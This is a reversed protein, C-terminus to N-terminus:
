VPKIFQRVEPQEGVIDNELTGQLNNVAAPAVQVPEQVVEPKPATKAASEYGRKGKSKVIEGM